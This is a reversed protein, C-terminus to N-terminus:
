EDTTKNEFFTSYFEAAGKNEMPNRKIFSAADQRTAEMTGKKKLTKKKPTATLRKIASAQKRTRADADISVGKLILKSEKATTLMTSHKVLKPKEKLLKKIRESQRRTKAESAIDSDKLIHESDKSLYIFKMIITSQILLKLSRMIKVKLTAIMTSKKSLKPKEKVQVPEPEEPKASETSDIYQQFKKVRQLKDEGWTRKLFDEGEAAAVVM